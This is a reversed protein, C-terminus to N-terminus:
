RRGKWVWALAAAVVAALAVPSGGGSRPALTAALWRRALVRYGAGTPHVGDPLASLPLAGHVDVFVAGVERALDETATSWAAARAERDRAPPVSGVLLPRGLTALDRILREWALWGARYGEAGMYLDNTGLAAWVVDPSTSAIWERALAPTVQEARRGGPTGPLTVTPAPVGLDAAALGCALATGVSISDGIFLVRM